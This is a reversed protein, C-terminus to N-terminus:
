VKENMQMLKQSGSLHIFPSKVIQIQDWKIKTWTLPETIVVAKLQSLLIFLHQFLFRVAALCLFNQCTKKKKKVQPAKFNAGDSLKATHMM